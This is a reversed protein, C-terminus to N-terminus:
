CGAEALEQPLDAEPLWTKWAYCLKELAVPQKLLIDATLVRAEQERDTRLLAEIVPFRGFQLNSTYDQDKTVEWLDLVTQWDGQQQALDMKQFYYCWTREPEEGFIDSNPLPGQTTSILNLRSLHAMESIGPDALTNYQDAENLFWVCQGYNSNDYFILKSSNAVLHLNSISFRLELNGELDEQHALDDYYDLMWYSVQGDASIPAAYLTNVAAAAAYGSTFTSMVEPGVLATGEEISPARWHFQWYIRRQEEWDWRYANASRLHAGVALGILVALLINRYISKRLLAHLLGSFLVAAGLMAPLSFRDVFLGGILTRGTMQIPLLSLIIAIVGLLIAQSAPREAPQDKTPTLQLYFFCIIATILALSLSFLIARDSFDILQASLTKSWADVVVTLLNQLTAQLFAPAGIWVLPNPDHRMTLTVRWFFFGALIALYPLWQRIARMVATKVSTNPTYFWVLLIVPRVLELGAFYEMTFLHAIGSLIALVLWVWRKGQSRLARLMAYLSFLFLNYVIFHQSYAVAISSQSFSPYVLFLVSAMQAVQEAKPWLMRLILWLLIAASLRLLFFFIHWHLPSVGLVPITVSYTWYSLPRIYSFFESLLEPTGQQALFIIPWDDWYFGLEPILLGFALIAILLLFAPFLLSKLKYQELFNM